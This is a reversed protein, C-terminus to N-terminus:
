DQVHPSFTSVYITCLHNVSGRAAGSLRIVGHENVLLVVGGRAKQGVSCFRLLIWVSGKARRNPRSRFFMFHKGDTWEYMTPATHPTGVLSCPIRCSVNALPTALGWVTRTSPVDRLLRRRATEAVIFM